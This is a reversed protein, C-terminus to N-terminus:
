IDEKVSKRKKGDNKKNKSNQIKVRTRPSKM